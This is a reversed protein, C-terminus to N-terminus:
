VKRGNLSNFATNSVASRGAEWALLVRLIRHPASGLNQAVFGPMLIRTLLIFPTDPFRHSNRVPHSRAVFSPSPSRKQEAM